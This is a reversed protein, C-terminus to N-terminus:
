SALQHSKEILADLHKYVNEKRWQEEKMHPKYGVDKLFEEEMIKKFGVCNKETTALCDHITYIPAKPLEVAIRKAITDIMLHSEIQQLVRPLISNDNKKIDYFIQYITPFLQQFLKMFKTTKGVKSFLLKFVEVKVDDRSQYTIELEQQIKEQIKEYFKGSTALDIYAQLESNIPTEAFLGLMIFSNNSNLSSNISFIDDVDDVFSSYSLNLNNNSILSDDVVIAKTTNNSTPTNRLKKNKLSSDCEEKAKNTKKSLFHTTIKNQLATKDITKKRLMNQYREFPEDFYITVKKGGEKVVILYDRTFLKIGLYMQSNSMDIANIPEGAYTVLNRYLKNLGTLPTHLRKVNDDRRSIAYCDTMKHIARYSHNRQELPNKFTDKLQNYDWIATNHKKQEYIEEMIKLAFESDFELKPDDFWKTIYNIPKNKKNQAFYNQKLKNQIDTEKFKCDLKKIPTQYEDVFAFSKCYEHKRYSDIRHVIKLDRIFYDWYQRYNKAVKQMEKSSLNTFPTDTDADEKPRAQNILHLFYCAKDVKFPKFKPPNNKFMALIDLNEPIMLNMTNSKRKNEHLLATAFSSMKLSTEM